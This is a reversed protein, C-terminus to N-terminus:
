ARVSLEFGNEQGIWINDLHIKPLRSLLAQKTKPKKAFWMGIQIAIHPRTEAQMSQVSMPNWLTTPTVRLTFCLLSTSNFHMLTASHFGHQSRCLLISCCDASDRQFTEQAVQCRSRKSPAIISRWKEHRRTSSSRWRRAHHSVGVNDSCCGNCVRQRQRPEHFPDSWKCFLLFYFTQRESRGNLFM